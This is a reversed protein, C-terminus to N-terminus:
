PSKPKSAPGSKESQGAHQQDWPAQSHLQGTYIGYAIFGLLLGALILRVSLSYWVARGEQDQGQNKILFGLGTFLSATLAIFLFVIVVKLWM